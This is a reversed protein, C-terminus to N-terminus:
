LMVEIVSGIVDGREKEDAVEARPERPIRMVRTKQTTMREAMATVTKKISIRTM